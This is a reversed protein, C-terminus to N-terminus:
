PPAAPLCPPPSRGNGRRGGARGHAQWGAGRPGVQVYTHSAGPPAAGKVPANRDHLAAPVPTGTSEKFRQLMARAEAAAAVAAGSATRGQGGGAAGAPAGGAQEGEQGGAQAETYGHLLVTHYTVPRTPVPPGALTFAHEALKAEARQLLARGHAAAPSLLPEPPMAKGRAAERMREVSPAPPPEGVAAMRWAASPTRQLPASSAARQLVSQPRRAESAGGGGPQCSASGAHEPPPAAGAAAGGAAGLPSGAASRLLAAEAAATPPPPRFQQLLAV